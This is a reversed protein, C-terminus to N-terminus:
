ECPTSVLKVIIQYDSFDIDDTFRFLYRGRELCQRGSILQSEWTVTAGSRFCSGDCERFFIPWTYDGDAKAAYIFYRGPTQVDLTITTWRQEFQPGLVAPDECSLSITVEIEEDPINPAEVLNRSCDFTMDRYFRRDCEPYTSEYRAVEDEIEVGYVERFVAQTKAFSDSYGSARDLELLPDLGYDERLYSVFHGALPFSQGPLRRGHEYEQLVSLIDGSLPEMRQWDDGYAEALGEDLPLYMRQPSRVAHVLEHQHVLLTSFVEPDEFVCGWLDDIGCQADIGEPLWYYDIKGAPRGFVEGLHGAVGDLYPLTGACIEEDADTGFRLHDGEWVIPPREVEAECGTSVITGFICAAFSAIWSARRPQLLTVSLIAGTEMDTLYDEHSQGGDRRVISRMAANAELTTADIVVRSYYHFWGHDELHM